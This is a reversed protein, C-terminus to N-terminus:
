YKSGFLECRYFVSEHAITHEVVTSSEVGSIGTGAGWKTLFLLTESM